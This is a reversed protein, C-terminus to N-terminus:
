LHHLRLFLGVEGFHHHEQLPFTLGAVISVGVEVAVRHSKSNQVVFEATESGVDSASVNSKVM